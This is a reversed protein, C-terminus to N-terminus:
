HLRETLNPLSGSAYALAAEAVDRVDTIVPDIGRRKLSEQAGWGMGGAIVADCDAVTDAMIQHKAEAHQGQGHPEGPAVHCDCAGFTHHGAKSRTERGVIKGDEIAVVVYYPARGFHQSITAEDDSVVAIRM